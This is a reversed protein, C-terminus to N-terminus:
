TIPWTRGNVAENNESLSHGSMKASRTETLMTWFTCDSPIEFIKSDSFPRFYLNTFVEWHLHSHIHNGRRDIGFWVTEDHCVTGGLNTLSSFVGETLNSFFDGHDNDSEDEDDSPIQYQELSLIAQILRKIQKRYNRVVIAWRQSPPRLLDIRFSPASCEAIRLINKRKNSKKKNKNIFKM